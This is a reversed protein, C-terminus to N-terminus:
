KPCTVVPVRRFSCEELRLDRGDASIKILPQRSPPLVPRLRYHSDAAGELSSLLHTSCSAIMGSFTNNRSMCLPQIAQPSLRQLHHAGRLVERNSQEAGVPLGSRGAKVTAQQSLCPSSVRRPCSPVEMFPITQTLVCKPVASGNNTFTLTHAIHPTAATLM